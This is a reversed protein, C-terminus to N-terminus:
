NKFQKCDLTSKKLLPLVSANKMSDRFIGQALSKNIIRSMTPVLEALHLKLSWTPAPDMPSSQTPSSNIAKFVEDETAQITEIKTIFFENFKGPLDTAIISEFSTAQLCLTQCM